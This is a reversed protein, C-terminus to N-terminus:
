QEMNFLAKQLLFLDVKVPFIRSLYYNYDGEGHFDTGVTSLAGYKQAINRYYDTIHINHKSSYVELGDCGKKLLDEVLLEDKIDGPHALVALGGCKHIFKLTEEFDLKKKEVYVNGGKSLFLSFAENFDTVYGNKLLLRAIHPRGYSFINQSELDKLDLNINHYVKLNDLMKYFRWKRYDRIESLFTNFESHLPDIGYAIMHVQKGPVYISLEAGFVVKIPKIYECVIKYADLSDHDTIALYRVGNKVALEILEQPSLKGDSFTTHTHLDIITM